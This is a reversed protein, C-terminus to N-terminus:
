LVVAFVQSITDMTNIIVWLRFFFGWNWCVESHLASGCILPPIALWDHGNHELFRTFMLLLLALSSKIAGNWTESLNAETDATQKTETAATQKTETDATQKTKTDASFNGFVNKIITKIGIGLIILLLLGHIGDVQIANTGGTLSVAYDLSGTDKSFFGDMDGTYKFNEFFTNIANM